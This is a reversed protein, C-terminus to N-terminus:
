AMRARQKEIERQVRALQARHVKRAKEYASHDCRRSGRTRPHLLFGVILSVGVLAVFLMASGLIFLVRLYPMLEEWPIM